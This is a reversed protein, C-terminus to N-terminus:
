WFATSSPRQLSYKLLFITHGFGDQACAKTLPSHKQLVQKDKKLWTDKQKKQDHLVMPVLARMKYSAHQDLLFPDFPEIKSPREHQLATFQKAHKQM